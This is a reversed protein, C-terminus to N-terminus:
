RDTGSRREVRDGCPQSPLAAHNASPRQARGHPQDPVAPRPQCLLGRSSVACVLQAISGGVADAAALLEERPVCATGTHRYVSLANKLRQVLDFLQEEEEEFIESQDLHGKGHHNEQKLLGGQHPEAEKVAEHPSHEHGSRHQPETAVLPRQGPVIAGSNANECNRSTQTGLERHKPTPSTVEEQSVGGPASARREELPSEGQQCDDVVEKRQPESTETDGADGDNEKGILAQSPPVDSLANQVLERARGLEEQLNENHQSLVEITAELQCCKNELSSHESQAAARWVQFQKELQWKDRQLDRMLMQTQTLDKKLLSTKRQSQLTRGTQLAKSELRPSSPTAKSESTVQSPTAQTQHPTTQTQPPTAQSLLMPAPDGSLRHLTGAPLETCLASRREAERRAFRRRLLNHRASHALSALSERFSPQTCHEMVPHSPKHKRSRRQTLFCTQCLHLNLCKLCRYRLGTIPFAKCVHCRVRHVVAESASIRYLTSLWLLLRPESQLWSIFHQESVGASLVGQFCTRAASEVQGFVHSEQVVAPVQSLHDLLTRLGSRTVTGSERGQRGSCSEALRFLATHKAYLTDGSLAILAAEVSQLSVFGTQERDFLKFLLRTTQEAAGPLLQGPLERSVREFIQQLSRGVDAETVRGGRDATAGLSRLAPGFACVTVTHMQCLKQLSRLKFAARYVAPRVENLGEIEDLDMFQM